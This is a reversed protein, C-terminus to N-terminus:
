FIVAAATASVIFLVLLDFSVAASLQSVALLCYHMIIVTTDRLNYEKERERRLAGSIGEEEEEEEEELSSPIKENLIQCLLM